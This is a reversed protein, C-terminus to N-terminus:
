HLISVPNLTGIRAEKGKAVQKIIRLISQVMDALQAQIQGMAYNNSSDVTGIEVFPVGIPTLRPLSDNNKVFIFGVPLARLVINL